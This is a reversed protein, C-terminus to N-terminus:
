KSFPDILNVSVSRADGAELTVKTARDWLQPILSQIDQGDALAVPRVALVRYEGPALRTLNLSGAKGSQNMLSEPWKRVIVIPETAPKEGSNVGSAISVALTATKDDLVIEVRSGACLTVPGGSVAVGDIRFEKIFYPQDLRNLMLEAPLCRVGTITFNGKADPSIRAGGQTQLTPQRLPPPDGSATVVRGLVDGDAILTLPVTANRDTITLPAVAAGHQTTAVFRYSGAPLGAVLWDRCPLGTENLGPLIVGGAFEAFKTAQLIEQAEPRQLTLQDGPECGHVVFHIRYRWEKHVRLNGLDLAGGPNVTAAAASARDAVGPWYATAYDQDVANEDDATFDTQPRKMMAAGTSVRVVYNGPVLGKALFSGDSETFASRNAALVPALAPMAGSTQPILDIRLRPIPKGDDDVVKGRLEGLRMLALRVEGSPHDKKLTVLTGTSSPPPSIPIPSDVAFGVYDPKAVEVYYDGPRTPKFHFAGTSDTVIGDFVTRARDQGFQYVTVQAGALPSNPGIELVIGRLELIDSDQACALAAILPILLLAKM